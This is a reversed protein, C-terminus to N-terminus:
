PLSVCALLLDDGLARRRLTLDLGLEGLALTQDVLDPALDRPQLRLLRGALRAECGLRLSSQLRREDGVM